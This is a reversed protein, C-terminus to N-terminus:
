KKLDAGDNMSLLRAAVDAWNQPVRDMDVEPEAMRGDVAECLEGLAWSM